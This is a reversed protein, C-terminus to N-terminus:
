TKSMVRWIKSRLACRRRELCRRECVVRLLDAMFTWALTAILPCSCQVLFPSALRNRHSFRAGPPPFFPVIRNTCPEDIAECGVNSRCTGPRGFEDAMSYKASRPESGQHM